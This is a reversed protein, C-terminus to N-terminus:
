IIKEKILIQKVKKILEEITRNNNIVYDFNSNDLATESFHTDKENFPKIAWKIHLSNNEDFPVEKFNKPAQGSYSPVKVTKPKSTKNVRITIGGRDEIAKLENPFRTDTIIWNPYKYDEESSYAKTPLEKYDAFLSNVWVNPHIINRGCDTGLLQFLKRPTLSIKQTGYFLRPNEIHVLTDIWNYAEGSTLFVKHVNLNLYSTDNSVIKYVDWKEGLEKEKFDRDELDLRTCGLLLCVIDKLKDAFKVIDYGSMTKLHLKYQVSDKLINYSEENYENINSDTKKCWLIQRIIEGVTDKGSGMKGSIGILNTNKNKM